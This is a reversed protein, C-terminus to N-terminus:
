PNTFESVGCAEHFKKENFAKNREGEEECYKHVFEILADNWCREEETEEDVRVLSHIIGAIM